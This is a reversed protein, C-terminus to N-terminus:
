LVMESDESYLALSQIARMLSEELATIALSRERSDPCQTVVKRAVIKYATRLVAMENATEETVRHYCFPKLFDREM